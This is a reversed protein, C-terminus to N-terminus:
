SGGLAGTATPALPSRVTRARKSQYMVADAQCQAEEVTVGQGATAWGVALSVPWGEVSPLGEVMELLRMTFSECGETTTDALLAAFEDGGIRAVFDGDRACRKLAQAAKRLLQDGAQHGLTDNVLKLNDLDAVVVSARRDKRRLAVASEWARRNALGTLSDRNAEDQTRDIKAQLEHRSLAMRLVSAAAQTLGLGIERCLNTFGRPAADTHLLLLLSRPENSVALLYYSRIGDNPSFPAPLPNATAEQECWPLENRTSDLFRMTARLEDNSAGPSDNQRWVAVGDQGPMYLVSLECSLAQAAVAVVHDAAADLTMGDFSMLEKTAHLLELEDALRKTPSVFYVDESARLASECLVADAVDKLPGAANGFVVLLDHSVPVIFASAAYYPGFIRVPGPELVRLPTGKKMAAAALPDHPLRLEVIGAWGEGRGIGGVHLFRDREVRRFVFMDGAGVLESVRQLGAESQGLTSDPSM